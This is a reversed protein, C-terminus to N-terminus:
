PGTGFQSELRGFAYRLGLDSLLEVLLAVSMGVVTFYDGEISEVLASGLGQIGYAGAKDLPEGTAVYAELDPDEAQRFRVSAQAVGSATRGGPAVIALGSLVVHDRGSLSRLMQVAHTPDGPKELVEGDRVVVTDGGIVLAQM